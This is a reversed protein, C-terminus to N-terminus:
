NIALEDPTLTLRELGNETIAFTNEIGVVGEGPFTFKPEIAIVMGPMLRSKVGAALVPLEDLELGVGHGLFKVQDTGFGMFNESLGAAEAM